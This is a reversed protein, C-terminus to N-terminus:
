RAREEEGHCVVLQPFHLLGAGPVVAHGPPHIPSLWLVFLEAAEPGLRFRDQSQLLLLSSRGSFSAAPPARVTLCARGPERVRQAPAGLRRGTQAAPPTATAM